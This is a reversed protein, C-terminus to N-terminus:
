AASSPSAPRLPRTSHWAINNKGVLSDSVEEDRNFEGAAPPEPLHITLKSRAAPDGAWCALALDGRVGSGDGCHTSYYHVLLAIIM